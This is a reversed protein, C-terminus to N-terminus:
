DEDGLEFAPGDKPRPLTSLDLAGVAAQERNMQMRSVEAHVEQCLTLAREGAADANGNCCSAVVRNLERRTRILFREYESESM